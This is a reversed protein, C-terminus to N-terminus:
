QWHISSEAIKENQGIVVKQVPVLRLRRTPGSRSWAMEAEEPGGAIRHENEPDRVPVLM